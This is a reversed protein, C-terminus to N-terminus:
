TIKGFAIWDALLDSEGRNRHRIHIESSLSNGKVADISERLSLAAPCHLQGSVEM